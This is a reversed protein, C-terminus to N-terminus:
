KCHPTFPSKILLYGKENALLWSAFLANRKANTLVAPKGNPHLSCAHSLLTNLSPGRSQAKAAMIQHM